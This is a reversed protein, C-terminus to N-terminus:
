VGPILKFTSPRAARVMVSSSSRESKRDQSDSNIALANSLLAPCDRCKIVEEQPTCEETSVSWLTDSNM